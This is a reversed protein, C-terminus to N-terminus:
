SAGFLLWLLFGGVLSTALGILVGEGRRRWNFLQTKRQAWDLKPNLYFDNRFTVCKEHVGDWAEFARDWGSEPVGEVLRAEQGERRIEAILSRMNRDFEGNDILSTDTRKRLENYDDVTRRLIIKNGDFTARKVHRSALNICENLDEGYKWHRSLHDWAAVLEFVLEIPMENYTQIENYLPKCRAYYLEFLTELSDPRADCAM